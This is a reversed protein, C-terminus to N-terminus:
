ILLRHATLAFTLLVASIRVSWPAACTVQAGEGFLAETVAQIGCLNRSMCGLQLAETSNSTTTGNFCSDEVGVCSLTANCTGAESDASSACAPCQKGNMLLNPVALTQFNCNDTSCCLQTHAEKKFGRNVSWETEISLPSVCSLLSSCNKHVTERISSGSLRVSTITKCVLSTIPCLVSTSNSCTENACVHCRLSEVTYLLAWTLCVSLLLKM